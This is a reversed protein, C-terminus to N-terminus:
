QDYLQRNRTATTDDDWLAVSARAVPPAMTCGHYTRYLRYQDVIDPAAAVMGSRLGPVNSRKSLSHFVACRDLNKRQMERCVDLLGVPATSQRFIDAYCEDCALIFDFKDALRLATCLQNTDACSGTPNGPSCLILLECREWVEASVKDFDPLFGNDASLNLFYPEAGALLTAGEYIQYFPNPMVVLPEHKHGVVAQIFSFLGERTGNVPVIMTAADLMDPPLQYRRRLASAGSERLAATGQSSPYSNLGSADGLLANVFAPPQHRPEGIHLHVPALNVPASADALLSSLKAFPYPQLRQLRPNM